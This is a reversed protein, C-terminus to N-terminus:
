RKKLPPRSGGSKPAKVAFTILGGGGILAPIAAKLALATTAAVQLLSLVAATTIFVLAGVGVTGALILLVPGTWSRPATHVIVVTRPDTGPPILDAPIHGARLQADPRIM